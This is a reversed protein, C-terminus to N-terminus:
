AIEAFADSLAELPLLVSGHRGKFQHVPALVALAAGLPDFAARGTQVMTRFPAEIREFTARTMGPTIAGFLAASAQGLACARVDQGFRTIIGDELGVWVTLRSGCIRSVKVIERVDGDPKGQHPIATTLRLIEPTYLASMLGYIHGFAGKNM